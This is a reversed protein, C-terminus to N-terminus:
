LKKRVNGIVKLFEKKFKKETFRKANRLLENRSFKLKEFRNIASILSKKDQKDFFIGTKTDIVTDLAGGVGYAIVSCGAAQAEVSVLGFDEEQPFILARANQYYGALESDTLNKVFKINRGAMKKLRGEEKGSGVIILRHGLENLAEIVLDVRKYKVLRSVVLYFGKSKSDRRRRM